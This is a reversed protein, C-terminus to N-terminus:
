SSVFAILCTILPGMAPTSTGFKVSSHAHLPLLCTIDLCNLVSWKFVDTCLQDDRLNGHCAATSIMLTSLPTLGSPSLVIILMM